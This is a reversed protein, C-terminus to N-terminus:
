PFELASRKYTQGMACSNEFTVIKLGRKNVKIVNPIYLKLFLGASATLATFVKDGFRPAHRIQKRM